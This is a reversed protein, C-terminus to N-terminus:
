IVNATWCRGQYTQLSIHSWWSILWGCKYNTILISPEVKWPASSTCIIPLKAPLNYMACSIVGHNTLNINSVKLVMDTFDGRVTVSAYLLTDLNLEKNRLTFLRTNSSERSPQLSLPEKQLQSETKLIQFHTFLGFIFLNSHPWEKIGADMDCCSQFLPKLFSCLCLFKPRQSDEKYQCINRVEM